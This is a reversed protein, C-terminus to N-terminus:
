RAVTVGAALACVNALSFALRAVGAYSSFAAASSSALRAVAVGAASSFDTAFFFPLRAVAVGATSRVFRLSSASQHKRFLHDDICLLKRLHLPGHQVYAGYCAVLSLRLM